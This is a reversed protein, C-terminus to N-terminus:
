VADSTMRKLLVIRIALWPIGFFFFTMLKLSAMLYFMILCYDEYALHFWKSHISYAWIGGFIYLVILCMLIGFGIVFGHALFNAALKLTQRKEAETSM